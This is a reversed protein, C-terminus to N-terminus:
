PTRDKRARESVLPLLQCRRSRHCPLDRCLVSDPTVVRHSGTTDYKEGVAPRVWCIPAPVRHHSGRGEGNGGAGREGARGRGRSGRAAGSVYPAFDPKLQVARDAMLYTIGLLTADSCALRAFPRAQLLFSPLSPPTHLLAARPRPTFCLLSVVAPAARLRCPQSPVTDPPTQRATRRKWGDRRLAGPPRLARGAGQFGLAWCGEGGCGPGLRPAASSALGYPWVAPVRRLGARPGGRVPDGACSVIRYYLEANKPEQRNMAAFLEQLQKAAQKNNGERTLSIM